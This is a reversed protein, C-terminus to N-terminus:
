GGQVKATCIAAAAELGNKAVAKILAVAARQDAGRGMNMHVLTAIRLAQEDEGRAPAGAQARLLEGVAEGYLTVGKGM